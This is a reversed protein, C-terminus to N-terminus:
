AAFAFLAALNDNNTLNDPNLPVFYIHLYIVALVSCFLAAGTGWRIAVLLVVMLLITAPIVVRLGTRFPSLSLAVCFVAIVSVVYGALAVATSSKSSPM